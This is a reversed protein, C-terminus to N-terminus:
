GTLEALRGVQDPDDAWCYLMIEDAGLDAFATVADHIRQPTTLLSDRVHRTDGLFAYYDDIAKQAPRCRATRASPSTSRPSSAPGDM